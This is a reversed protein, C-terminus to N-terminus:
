RHYCRRKLPKWTATEWYFFAPCADPIGHSFALSLGQAGFGLMDNVHGGGQRPINEQIASQNLLAMFRQYKVDDGKWCLGDKNLLSYEKTLLYVYELHLGSCFYNIRQLGFENVVLPAYVIHHKNKICHEGLTMHMSGYRLDNWTHVTQAGSGVFDDVLIVNQPNSDNEELKKILKEFSLMREPPIDAVDRLKRPFIYGSDTLDDEGEGQIFSYWCNNQFSEHAWTPDVKSFFYGCHGIVTQLMQNVLIDPIYIFNDLIQTAIEKDEDTQFNDLWNEYDLENAIPWLQMKRYFSLKQKIDEAMQLNEISHM